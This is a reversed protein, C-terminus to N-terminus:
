GVVVDLIFLGLEETLRFKRSNWYDYHGNVIMDVVEPNPAMSLTIPDLEIVGNVFAYKIDAKTAGMELLELTSLSAIDMVTVIRVISPHRLLQEIFEESAPLKKEHRHKRWDEVMVM